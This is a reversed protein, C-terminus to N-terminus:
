DVEKELVSEGMRGEKRIGWADMHGDTCGGSGKNMWQDISRNIMWGGM